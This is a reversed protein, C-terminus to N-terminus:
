LVNIYSRVIDYMEILPKLQKKIKQLTNDVYKVKKGVSKAIEKYPIKQLYMEFIYYEEEALINKCENMFEEVVYGEFLSQEYGLNLVKDEESEDLFFDIKLSDTLMKNKRRNLYTLFSKIESEISKWAFSTFSSKGEKYYYIAKLIGVLGNQILDDKEAWETYYKSSIKVVMPYYREVIFDTAEKVGSQALRILEITPKSRFKYKLHLM